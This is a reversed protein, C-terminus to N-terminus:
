SATCVTDLDLTMITSKTGFKVINVNFSLIYTATGSGSVAINTIEIENGNNDAIVSNTWDSLSQDANSFIPVGYSGGSRTTITKTSIAALTYKVTGLNRGSSSRKGKHYNSYTQTGSGPITQGNISYFLSATTVRLTITPNIYQYLVRSYWGNWGNRDTVFENNSNFNPFVTTPLINISYRTDSTVKNIKQAFSYKGNSGIKDHIINIDGTNGIISSNAISDTIISHETSNVIDNNSDISDTFKNVAIKFESNPTGYVTIVRNEGAESIETEGFIVNTIGTAKTIIGKSENILKYRLKNTKSIKEKGTYILNYLYSTINGNSDKDVTNLQLKLYSNLRSSKNKLKLSPAKTLKKNEGATLRLVGITTPTNKEVRGSITFSKRENNFGSNITKNTISVANGDNDIELSNTNKLIEIAM